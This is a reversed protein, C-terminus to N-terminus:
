FVVVPPKVSLIASSQPYRTGEHTVGEESVPLAKGCADCDIRRLERIDELRVILSKGCRGCNVSLLDDNKYGSMRPSQALHNGVSEFTAPLAGAYAELILDRVAHSGSQASIDRLLTFSRRQGCASYQARSVHCKVATRRELIAFGDFGGSGRCGQKELLVL